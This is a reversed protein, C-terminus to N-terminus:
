RIRELCPRSEARTAHQAPEARGAQARTNTRKRACRALSFDRLSSMVIAWPLRPVLAARPLLALLNNGEGRSARAPLPIFPSPYLSLPKETQGDALRWGLSCCALSSGVAGALAPRADHKYESTRPGAHSRKDNPM